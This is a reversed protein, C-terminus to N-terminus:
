RILVLESDFLPCGHSRMAEPITFNCLKPCVNKNKRFRPLSHLLTISIIIRFPRYSFHTIRRLNHGVAGQEGKNMLLALLLQLLRHCTRRSIRQYRPKATQKQIQYQPEEESLIGIGQKKKEKKLQFAFLLYVKKLFIHVIEKFIYLNKRFM